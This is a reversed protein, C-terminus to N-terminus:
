PPLMSDKASCQPSAGVVPVGCNPTRETQGFFPYGDVFETPLDRFELLANLAVLRAEHTVRDYRVPDGLDNWYDRLAAVEVYVEFNGPDLEARGKILRSFRERTVKSSLLAHGFLFCFWREERNIDWFEKDSFPQQQEM